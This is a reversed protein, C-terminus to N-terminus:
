QLNAFVQLLDRIFPQLLKPVSTVHHFNLFGEASTAQVRGRLDSSPCVDSVEHSSCLVCRCMAAHANHPCHLEPTRTPYLPQVIPKHAQHAKPAVTFRVLQARLTYLTEVTVHFVSFSFSLQSLLDLASELFRICLEESTLTSCGVKPFKCWDNGLM